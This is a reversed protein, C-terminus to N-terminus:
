DDLDWGALVPKLLEGTTIHIYEIVRNLDRYAQELLDGDFNPPIANHNMFDIVYEIAAKLNRWFGIPAEQIEYPNDSRAIRRCQELFRFSDPRLGERDNSFAKYLKEMYTKITKPDLPIFASM